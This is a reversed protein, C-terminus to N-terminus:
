FNGKVIKRRYAGMKSGMQIRDTVTMKKRMGTLPMTITNGCVTCTGSLTGAAQTHEIFCVTHTTERKCKSCEMPVPDLKM